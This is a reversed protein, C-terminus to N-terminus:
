LAIDTDHLTTNMSKHSVRVEPEEGYADIRNCHEQILPVIKEISRDFFGAMEERYHIGPDAPLEMNRSTTFDYKTVLIQGQDIIGDVITNHLPPPLDLNFDPFVGSFQKKKEVFDVMLTRM